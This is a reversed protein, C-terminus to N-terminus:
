PQSRLYEGESGFFQVPIRILDRDLSGHGFNNRTYYVYATQDTNEFSRSTSDPDLLSPYLYSVDSGPNAVTWPLPIEVLLKRRTWDILDDSFAYYIGWVERGDIQDASIGVLVYRNMTTNYAVSESMNGIDNQDLPACLHLLPRSVDDRYPDLFADEFGTGDWYRWSGPEALDDTRM